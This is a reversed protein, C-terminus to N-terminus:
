GGRRPTVRAARWASPTRVVPSAGDRVREFPDLLFTSDAGAFCPVCLSLSWYEAHRLELMRHRAGAPVLWVDGASVSWDGALEVRARGGTHLALVADAHTV